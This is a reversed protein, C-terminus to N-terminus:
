FSNDNLWYFLDKFPEEAKRIDEFRDRYKHLFKHMTTTYYGAAGIHGCTDNSEKMTFPINLELNPVENQYDSLFTNPMGLLYHQTISDTGHKAFCPYIYKNLFDQDSGKRSYDIGKGEVMQEWSSFGTYDKFNARKFGIMGGLMPLNHSVSDTIAHAAKDRNMWYKVCQAEKYTAPSDLDRCLVLEVTEDFLPKMRWLMGLCLPAPECIVVKIPLNNLLLKFADYTSQDTHIRTEWEPFILRNMRLNIMFGRLYSNFDFCDAQREKNYGFLSYSIVKM